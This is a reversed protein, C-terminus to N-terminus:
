EWRFKYSKMFVDSQEHSMKSCKTDYIFTKELYTAHAKYSEISSSDTNKLLKRFEDHYYDVICADWYDFNPKACFKVVDQIDQIIKDKGLLKLKSLLLDYDPTQLQKMGYNKTHQNSSESVSMIEGKLNLNSHISINDAQVSTCTKPKKTSNM